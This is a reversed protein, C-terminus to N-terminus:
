LSGFLVALLERGACVVSVGAFGGATFGSVVLLAALIYLNFGYDKTLQFNSNLISISQRGSEGTM